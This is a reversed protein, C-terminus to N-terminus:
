IEDEEFLDREPYDGVKVKDPRVMAGRLPPCQFYRIGKVIGDHKGLPEDYQIGVWFGPALSEARGVFKVVGRKAGPDVECRDGVKINACLDEMYNNSIKNELASSNQSQMKEKFKRFTGDRKSYEEESITYKEVLSTDELWGGSTVSSPDLDIVHLRYGDLPSYFGLPRSNDTLDSVKSNTDDYLELRMSEVSTGCKRWLKDKVSEVSMQLSFRVDSAFTKINSHTVRLVVSKDGEVQQLRSAM